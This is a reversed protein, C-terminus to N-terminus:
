GRGGCREDPVDGVELPFPGGAVTLVRAHEVSCGVIRVALRKGFHAVDVSMAEAEGDRWFVRRLHRIEASVRALKHGIAFTIKAGPEIPHRDIMPVGVVRMDM